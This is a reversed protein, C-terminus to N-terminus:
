KIKRINFIEAKAGKTFGSMLEGVVDNAERIPDDMLHAYRMTTQAQTHGLLKGVMPLTLGKSIAVSAYTHRLDHIRVDTLGARDRVRRWPRQISNWYQGEVEGYIVYPNNPQRPLKSLVELAPANLQIVRAGTKSDELRIVKKTMDVQNWRLQQIEGLRCGTFLLLRYAAIVQPKELQQQESLTLADALNFIEEPSLFRERKKEKYADIGRAPNKGEERLGWKEALDFMKSLVELMRNASYPTDKLKHHVRMIDGRALDIVKRHGLSPKIKKTWLWVDQKISSDKKKVKAYRELYLEWLQAMTEANNVRSKEEAPDAKKTDIASLHHMALKRAEDPTIRGHQGLAFKRTRKAKNRYQIIYTKLGSPKIRLGYGVLESDWVMEEGKEPIPIADVNRKTLKVKIAKAKM